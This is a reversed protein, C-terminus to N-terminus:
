EALRRSMMVNTVIYGAKESHPKLNALHPKKGPFDSPSKGPL